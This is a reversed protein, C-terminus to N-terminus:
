RARRNSLRMQFPKHKTINTFRAQRVLQQYLAVQNSAAQPNYWENDTLLYLKSLTLATIADVWEEYIFEPVEESDRSPAVALEIEASLKHHASITGIYLTDDQIRYNVANPPLQYTNDSFFRVSMVETIRNNTHLKYSPKCPDLEICLTETLVKTDRLFQIVSDMAYTAAMDTDIGDIHSLIRPLFDAVHRTKRGFM